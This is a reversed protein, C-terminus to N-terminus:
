CGANTARREELFKLFEEAITTDMGYSCTDYGEDELLQFVDYWIDDLCNPGLEEFTILGKAICFAHLGDGGAHNHWDYFLGRQTDLHLNFGNKSGFVPNAGMITHGVIKANDPYIWDEPKLNCGEAILSDGRARRARAAIIKQEREEQSKSKKVTGKNAEIFASLEQWSVDIIENNNHTYQRGTDPHISGSGVVYSNHNSLRIDGLDGPFVIKASTPGDECRLYIHRGSGDERGSTVVFSAKWHEPIRDWLGSSDCDVILIGGRPLVGYNNGDKIHQILGNDTIGYNCDDSKFHGSQGKAPIKSRCGLRIFRCDKLQHPVNKYNECCNDLPLIDNEKKM